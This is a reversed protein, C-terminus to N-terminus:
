RCVSLFCVLFLDWNPRLKPVSLVATMLVVLGLITLLFKSAMVAAFTKSIEEVDDAHAAVRRTATLNFSYETLTIFYWMFSQAYAVLGFKTPGLVHTLYPLTVLPM